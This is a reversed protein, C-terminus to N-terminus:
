SNVHPKTRGKTERLVKFTTPTVRKCIRFAGSPYVSDMADLYGHCYQVSNSAAFSVEKWEGDSRLREVWFRFMHEGGMM